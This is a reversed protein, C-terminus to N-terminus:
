ADSLCCEQWQGIQAAWLLRDVLILASGFAAEDGPVGCKTRRSPDGYSKLTIAFALSAVLLLRLYRAVRLNRTKRPRDRGWSKGKARTVMESVNCRDASRRWRAILQDYKRLPVELLLAGCCLPKPETCAPLRVVNTKALFAFLGATSMTRLAGALRVM